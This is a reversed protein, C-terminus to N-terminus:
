AHVRQLLLRAKDPSIAQRVTPVRLNLRSLDFSYMCVAFSM